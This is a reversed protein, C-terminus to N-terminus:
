LRRIAKARSLKKRLDDKSLGLTSYGMSHYETAMSKQTETAPILPWEVVFSKEEMMKLWSLLSNSSWESADWLRDWMPERLIWIHKYGGERPFTKDDLFSITKGTENLLIWLLPEDQCYREMAIMTAKAQLSEPKMTGFGELARKKSLIRPFDLTACRQQWETTAELVIRQRLQDPSMRYMPDNLWLWVGLPHRPEISHTTLGWRPTQDQTDAATTGVVENQNTHPRGVRFTCDPHTECLQILSQPVTETM